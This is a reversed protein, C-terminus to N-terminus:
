YNYKEQIELLMKANNEIVNLGYDDFQALLDMITSIKEKREDDVPYLLSHEPLNYFMLIVLLLDSGPRQRGGEIEALHSKSIGIQESATEITLHRQKRAKIIAISYRKFFEELNKDYSDINM